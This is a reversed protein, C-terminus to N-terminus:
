LWQFTALIQALWSRTPFNNFFCQSGYSFQSKEWFPNLKANARWVDPQFLTAISAVRMTPSGERRQLFSTLKRRLRYFAMLFEKKSTRALAHIQPAAEVLGLDALVEYLLSHKLFFRLHVLDAGFTSLCWSCIVSSIVFAGWRNWAVIKSFFFKM